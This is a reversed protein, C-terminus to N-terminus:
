VTKMLFPNTMHRNQARIFIGIAEQQEPQRIKQIIFVTICVEYNLSFSKEM